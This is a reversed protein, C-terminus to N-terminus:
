SESDESEPEPSEGSKLSRVLTRVLQEFKDEREKKQTLRGAIFLGILSACTTIFVTTGPISKGQYILFFAAAISMLSIAAGILQSRRETSIDAIQQRDELGLRHHTQEEMLTFIRDAAGPLTEEYQRLMHPPPLPAEYRIRILEPLETGPRDSSEPDSETDRDRDPPILDQEAM